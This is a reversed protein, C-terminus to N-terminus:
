QLTLTTRSNSIAFRRASRGSCSATPSASYHNLAKYQHEFVLFPIRATTFPILNQDKKLNLKPQLTTSYDVVKARYSTGSRHFTIGQQFSRCVQTPSHGRRSTFIRAVGPIRYHSIDSICYRCTLSDVIPTDSRFDMM